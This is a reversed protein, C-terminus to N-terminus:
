KEKEKEKLHEPLGTIDKETQRNLKLVTSMVNQKNLKMEKKTTPSGVHRFLM